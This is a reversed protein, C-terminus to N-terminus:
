RRWHSSAENMQKAQYDSECKYLCVAAVIALLIKGVIKLSKAGKFHFRPKPQTVSSQVEVLASYAARDVLIIKKLEAINDPLNAHPNIWEGEEHRRRLLEWVIDYEPWDHEIVVCHLPERDTMERHIDVEDLIQKLRARVMPNIKELDSRKIVIYRQEKRFANM